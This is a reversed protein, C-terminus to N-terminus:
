EASRLLTRLRDPRTFHRALGGDSERSSAKRGALQRFDRSLHAQDFYGAELAVDVFRTREAAQMSSLVANLRVIRTYQKPTIGLERQFTRVLTRRSTGCSRALTAIRIQGRTAKIRDVARRSKPVSALGREALALLHSEAARVIGRTTRQSRVAEILKNVGAGLTRAMDVERDATGALNLRFLAALAGPKFRIGLTLVRKGPRLLWPRSLTGALFSTPQKVWKNDVRRTFVDGLHVIWEPCGDPLVRDPERRQQPRDRVIWFCEVFDALPAAPLHEVYRL